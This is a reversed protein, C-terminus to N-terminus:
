AAVKYLAFFFNELDNRLNRGLTGRLTRGQLRLRLLELMIEGLDHAAKPPLTAALPFDKHPQDALRFRKQQRRSRGHHRQRLAGLRLALAGGCQRCLLPRAPVGRQGQGQPGKLLDGGL